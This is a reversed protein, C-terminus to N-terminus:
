AGRDAYLIAEFAEWAIRSVQARRATNGLGGTGRRRWRAIREDAAAAVAPRAADADLGVRQADNTGRALDLLDREAQDDLGLSRLDAVAATIAVFRMTPHARLEALRQRLGAMAAARGPDSWAVLDLAAMAGATRLIDAAPVFRDEIVSRVAALGALEGLRRTVVEVPYGGEDYLALAATIGYRGLLALLRRRGAADGPLGSDDIFADASLLRARRAPAPVAAAVARLLDADGPDLEGLAATQALLGVVPIVDSVNARLRGAYRGAVRRAQPWPDGEGTGLRDIQSLVGVANALSLGAASTAATFSELAEQERSGPHPMVFVLADCERLAAMSMDDLGSLADLGPTDVLTYATLAPHPTCLTVSRLEAAPRGLDAPIRGDPTPAIHYAPGSRPQVEVTTREGHRFWTVVRTCETSGTAALRSGLLANVLTSKGANLRGGVAIRLTPEALRRAVAEVRGRQEDAGLDALVGACLSRLQDRLPGPENM